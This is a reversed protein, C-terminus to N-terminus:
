LIRFHLITRRLAREAIWYYPPRFLQSPISAAPTFVTRGLAGAKLLVQNTILERSTCLPLERGTFSKEPLCVVLHGNPKLASLAADIFVSYLDSLKERDEKTNFGYPPDCLVIDYSNKPLVRADKTSIGRELRDGLSTLEPLLLLKPFLIKSYNGKVAVYNVNTSLRPQVDVEVRLAAYLKMQAVLEALSQRFADPFNASGRTFASHFRLEARLCIYFLLRVFEAASSLENVFAATLEFEQKENPFAQRLDRLFTAARHYDAVVDDSEDGGGFDLGDQRSAADDSSQAELASSLAELKRVVIQISQSSACFFSFNDRALLSAAPSLDSCQIPVDGLLRMAELWTTGTGCFPDCITPASAHPRTANILAATLSHPLTTHSKWAPKNEDFLFFPVENKVLQQYCIYYRDPGEITPTDFVVSRDCILWLSEAERFDHNRTYAGAGPVFLQEKYVDRMNALIQSLQQNGMSMKEVHLKSLEIGRSIQEKAPKDHVDFDEHSYVIFPVPRASQKTLTLHENLGGFFETGTAKSIHRIYISRGASHIYGSDACLQEINLAIGPPLFVACSGYFINMAVTAGIVEAYRNAFDDILPQSQEPESSVFSFMTTLTSKVQATTHFLLSKPVQGTHTETAYTRILAMLEVYQVNTVGLHRKFLFFAPTGDRRFWNTFFRDWHFRKGDTSLSQAMCRSLTEKVTAQGIVSEM